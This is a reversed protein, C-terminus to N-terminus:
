LKTMLEQKRVKYLKTMGVEEQNKYFNKTLFLSLLSDVLPLDFHSQRDFVYTPIHMSIVTCDIYM